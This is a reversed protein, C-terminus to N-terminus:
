LMFLILLFSFNWLNVNSSNSPTHVIKWPIFECRRLTEWPRQFCNESKNTCSGPGGECRLETESALRIADHESPIHILLIWKSYPFLPFRHCQVQFEGNRCQQLPSCKWIEREFANVTPIDKRPFHCICSLRFLSHQLHLVKQLKPM